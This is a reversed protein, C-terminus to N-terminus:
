IERYACLKKLFQTKSLESANTRLGIMRKVDDETIYIPQLKETGDLLKLTSYYGAGGVSELMYVRNYFKKWNKETISRIGVYITSMLVREYISIMKSYGQEDEKTFLEKYNEVDELNWNLAMQYFILYIIPAILGAGKPNTIPPSDFGGTVM